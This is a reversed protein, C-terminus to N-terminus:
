PTLGIEAIAIGLERSDENIGLKEPCWTNDIAINIVVDNKPSLSVEFVTEQWGATACVQASLVRKGGQDVDIQFQFEDLQSFYKLYLKREEGTPKLTVSSAKDTWRVYGEAWTEILYFGAVHISCNEGMKIFNDVVIHPIGSRFLYDPFYWRFSSNKQAKVLIYSGLNNRELLRQFAGGACSFITKRECIKYGVNSLIDELEFLSYERNHRGYAGYGSYADCISTSTRRHIFKKLNDYRLVNPTSLILVGGPKLVRHLNYLAFIPNEILHEIVECFLIVDFYEDPYPLLESEININKFEFEHFENYKDNNIYQKQERETIKGFYNTMSIEYNRFKKILLTLFYPNAGIELLQGKGNPILDLTALFRGYAEDVYGHLENAAEPAVVSHYLYDKVDMVIRTPKRRIM